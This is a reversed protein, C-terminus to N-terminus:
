NGSAPIANYIEGVYKNKGTVKTIWTTAMLNSGAPGQIIASGGTTGDSYYGFEAGATGISSPSSDVKGGSAIAGLSHTGVLNGNKDYYYVKVKGKALGGGLNMISINTRQRSGSSFNAKSYNAYPVSLKNTGVAQGYYDTYIGAEKVMGTAMIPTSASSIIASGNFGKKTGSPTCAHFYAGSLASITKAEKKGSNYSVTVKTSKTGDPNFVFFQTSTGYTGKCIALPMYLKNGSQTLSESATNTSSDSNTQVKMGAIKGIDSTGSRHSVVHVASYYNEALEPIESLDFSQSGGAVVKTKTITTPTAGSYFTLALDAPRSDINQISFMTEETIMNLFWLEGTGATFGHAIPRSSISNQDPVRTMLVSLKVDSKVVASGKFGSPDTGLSGVAVTASAGPALDPRSISIPSTSGEAYFLIVIHATTTDINQYTITTTYNVTTSQALAPGSPWLAIMLIAIVCQNLWRRKSM